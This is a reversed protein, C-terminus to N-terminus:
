SGDKYGRLVLDILVWDHLGKLTDYMISFHHAFLVSVLNTAFVAVGIGPHGNLIFMSTAFGTVILWMLCLRASVKKRYELVDLSEKISRATEETYELRRFQSNLERIPADGLM